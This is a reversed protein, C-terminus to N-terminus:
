VDDLISVEQRIADYQQRLKQLARYGRQRAANANLDTTAECSFVEGIRQWSLNEIIRACLLKRDDLSLTALALCIAKQDEALILNSFTENRVVLGEPDLKPNDLKDQKRRLDRIVNLCTGRIWPLPKEIVHGREIQRVGVAYAEAVIERVDYTGVLRFQQLTRAINAWLSRAEPNEIDFVAQIATDFQQRNQQQGLVKIIGFCKTKLWAAQIEIVSGPAVQEDTHFAMTLIDDPGYLEALRYNELCPQLAERISDLDPHEADFLLQFKYAM